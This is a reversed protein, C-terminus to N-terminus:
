RALEVTRIPSLKGQNPLLSNFHIGSGKLILAAAISLYMYKENNVRLYTNRDELFPINANLSMIAIQREQQSLVCKIGGLRNIILKDKPAQCEWHWYSLKRVIYTRKATEVQYEARHIKPQTIRLVLERSHCDVVETAKSFFWFSRKVDLMDAGDVQIKQKKWPFFHQPEIIVNFSRFNM